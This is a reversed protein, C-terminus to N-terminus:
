LTVSASFQLSAHAVNNELHRDGSARGGVLSAARHCIRLACKWAITHFCACTVCGVSRRGSVMPQVFSFPLSSVLSIDRAGTGSLQSSITLQPQLDPHLDFFHLQRLTPSGHVPAHLHLLVASLQQWFSALPAMISFWPCYNTCYLLTTLCRFTTKLKHKNFFSVHFEIFWFGTVHSFSVISKVSM